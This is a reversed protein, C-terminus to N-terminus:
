DHGGLHSRSAPAHGAGPPEQGANSVLKDKGIQQAGEELKGVDRSTM